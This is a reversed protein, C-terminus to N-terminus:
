QSSSPTLQSTNIVFVQGVEIAQAAAGFHLALVGKGADIATKAQTKIQLLRWTPGLTLVNEGFGPYPPDNAQVRIGLKSTGDAPGGPATRALIGILIVDGEAISDTIPVNAGIDFANAAAAATRVLLATGGTGPINPSPVTQHTEGPGYVAWDKNAPNSILKGKGQLQPLIGTTASQEAKGSKTTLSTTGSAVITQGIELVQKAGSLQFGVVAQGRPISINAKAAVQYLKWDKEILITTDGFGSYPPVNQNFRVGIRGKGDSTEASVTRAYFAVVVDTGSKIGATIPANAGAEFLTAGAKAITIQTAAKGGPINEGKVPKSTQDAGFIQWDLRTPDNILTGPLADDLAQLEATPQDALVPASVSVVAAVAWLAFKHMEFM